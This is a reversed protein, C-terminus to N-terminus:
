WFFEAYYYGINEKNDIIYLELEHNKGSALRDKDFRYFVLNNKTDYEFLVWENDIYGEYSLIGSIEDIVRFRISEKTYPTESGRLDLSKIEPAATDIIVTYKGFKRIQTSLMGDKWEGGASTISGDDNLVGILAKEKFEDPLGDPRISLDCALHIPTYIDHLSHVPSYTGDQKDSLTYKFKLDTYIAGEPIKLIINNRTFENAQSCSFKRVYDNEAEREPLERPIGGQVVFNLESRNAYADELIFKVRYFRQDAFDFMGDNEVYRYLDLHNNPEVFTKQVLIKHRLKADYDIYSNIYRAKSFPFRDMSWDYRLVDDILMRIRYIGCRNHAGNLYDFAEIGFGASASASLTDGAKLFYKGSDGAVEFGSREFSNNVMSYENGPYMYLSFIRPAVHDKIDFGFLMVNMPEQNAADRIEFHLHPGLSYGSTGSYAVLEGKKVPWEEKEPFTNLAHKQNSYQKERVYEDIDKRFLDLHAYVTTYGEPHTIYLTNGYGAAEVKIRSIYGDAAAYVRQATVGQTKIDIGAHFHNSRLEGFNGSLYMDFDVPARFYDNRFVAQSRSFQLLCLCGMFFTFFRYLM